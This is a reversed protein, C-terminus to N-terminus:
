IGETKKVSVTPHLCQSITWWLPKNHKKTNVRNHIIFSFLTFRNDLKIFSIFNHLDFFILYYLILHNLKVNMSTRFEM